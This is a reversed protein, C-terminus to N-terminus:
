DALNTEGMMLDDYHQEYLRAEEEEDRQHQLAPLALLM